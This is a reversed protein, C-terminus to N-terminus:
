GEERLHARRDPAQYVYGAPHGGIHRRKLTRYGWHNNLLDLIQQASYEGTLYHDVVENRSLRDPHWAAIGDAKGEDLLDLVQQFVWRRGPEFASKSEEV